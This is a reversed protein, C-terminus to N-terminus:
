FLLSSHNNHLSKTSRLPFVEYKQLRKWVFEDVIWRFIYTLVVKQDITQGLLIIDKIQKWEMGRTKRKKTKKKVQAM